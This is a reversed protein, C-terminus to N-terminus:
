VRFYIEEVVSGTTRTCVAYVLSIIMHMFYSSHHITPRDADRRSFLSSFYFVFIRFFHLASHYGDATPHTHSHRPLSPPPSLPITERISRARAGLWDRPPPTGGARRGAASGGGRTGTLRARSREVGGGSCGCRWRRWGRGFCGKPSLAAVAACPHTAPWRITAPQHPPPLPPIRSIPYLIKGTGRRRIYLALRTPTRVPSRPVSEEGGRRSFPTAAAAPVGNSLVVGGALLQRTRERRNLREWRSLGLAGDSLQVCM